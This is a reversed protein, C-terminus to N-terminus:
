KVDMGARFQLPGISALTEDGELRQKPPPFQRTLKQARAPAPM